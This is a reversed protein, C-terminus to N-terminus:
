MTAVPARTSHSNRLIHRRESDQGHWHYQLKFPVYNTKRGSLGQCQLDFWIHHTNDVNRASSFSTWLDAERQCDLSIPCHWSRGTGNRIFEKEAREMHLANSYSFWDIATSIVYNELCCRGGWSFTNKWHSMQLYTLNVFDACGIPEKLM